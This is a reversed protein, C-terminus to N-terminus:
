QRALVELDGYNVKGSATLPLAELFRFDFATPPLKLTQSLEVAYKQYMKKGGHSCFIRIKEDTGVVASPGHPSLLREIDDLNIRLGYLKSFRKMRGTVYLYGEEDLYGLDGTALVSNLVEGKALDERVTAYGMMVNAGSYIIEGIQNAKRTLAGDVRIQIDGGSIPLGVSGPKEPLKSPPLWTIRATAETQGYMVVLEAGKKALMKHFKRIYEDSMRGGAQTMTKLSPLEMKEFDIRNLLHYQFPVGAFSTCRTENFLEWFSRQLPSNDTIVLAAGAMLHSNLVSLGFSYHMPLSTIAREGQGIKLALAISQANSKINKRSLRVLKPSGTSGSTPLLLVLDKHLAPGSVAINRFFLLRGFGLNRPQTYSSNRSIDEQTNESSIIIEPKYIRTLHQRLDEGTRADFLAVAHGSLLSALYSLVSGMDNSCYCFILCKEPRSFGQAMVHALKEIEGLRWWRKKQSDYLCKARLDIDGVWLPDIKIQDLQKIM